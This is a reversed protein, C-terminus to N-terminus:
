TAGTWLTDLIAAVGDPIGKTGESSDGGGDPNQYSREVLMLIAHQLRKPSPGGATYEVTIAGPTDPHTYPYGFSSGLALVPPSHKLWLSYDAPDVTQEAGDADVYNVSEVSVVPEVPFRIWGDAPWEYLTLRFTRPGFIRGTYEECLERAAGIKVDLVADEDGHDIASSSKVLALTVPEVAPETLQENSESM